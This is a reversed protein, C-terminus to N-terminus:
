LISYAPSDVAILLLVPPLLFLGMFERSPHFLNPVPFPSYVKGEQVEEEEKKLATQDM